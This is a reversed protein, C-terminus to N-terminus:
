HAGVAEAFGVQPACETEGNRGGLPPGQPASNTQVVKRVRPVCASVQVGTYM